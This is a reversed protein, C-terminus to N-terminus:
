LSVKQMSTLGCPISLRMTKFTGTAMHRSISISKHVYSWDVEEEYLLVACVEHEQIHKL